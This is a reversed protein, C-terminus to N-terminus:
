IKKNLLCNLDIFFRSNDNLCNRQEILKCATIKNQYDVENLQNLFNEIQTEELANITYGVNTSKVKKGLFVGDSVIIPCRFYMAEYLKNPEAYIVNDFYPSYTALSLDIYSYIAPLDQPNRFRGHYIVNNYKETIDKTMAAYKENEAFVGFIHIEIKSGFKEACVKIFNYITEYRVAGVYGIKIKGDRILSRNEFKFEPCNSNLKNPILEIKTKDVTKFYEVFGQSTLITKVSGNISKINEKHLITRLLGKLGLETM